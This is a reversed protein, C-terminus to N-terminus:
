KGFRSNMTDTFTKVYDDYGIARLEDGYAAFEAETLERDGIVFRALETKIYEELATQTDEMMTAVDEGYVEYPLGRIIFPNLKNITELNTRGVRDDMKYSAVEAGDTRRDLINGTTRIPGVAYYYSRVDPFKGSDVDRYQFAGDADKYWGELLGYGDDVGAEPGYYANYRFREDYCRDAFRMFAVSQEESAKDTLYFQYPLGLQSAIFMAVPKDSYQSTLPELTYYSQYSDDGLGLVNYSQFLAYRDAQAMAASEDAGRTFFEADMLGEAYMTRYFKLLEFFVPDTQLPVIYGDGGAYDGGKQTVALYMGNSQFGFATLLNGGFLNEGKGASSGIPINDNGLGKPDEAKVLRLYDLFEDTTKPPQVGLADMVRQDYWLPQGGANVNYKLDQMVSPVTYINGSLTMIIPLQEEFEAMIKSLNPMVSPDTLYKNLPVMQKEQDGYRVMDMLGSFAYGFYLIAEPYDGSAMLLDAVEDVQDNPYTVFDIDINMAQKAYEYLWCNEPDPMVDMVALLATLKVPENYRYVGDVIQGPEGSSAAETAAPAEAQATTGAAETAAAGATTATTAGGGGSGNCGFLAALMAAALIATLVRKKISM